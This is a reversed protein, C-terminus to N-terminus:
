ADELRAAIHEIKEALREVAAAAAEDAGGGDARGASGAGAGAEQLEDAMILSTMMLLRAEGVQGVSAVLNRMRDDIMRGLKRLHEEQGDECAVDYSRGNIELSVTAM